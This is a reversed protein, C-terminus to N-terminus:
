LGNKKDEDFRWSTITVALDKIIEKLMKNEQKLKELEKM